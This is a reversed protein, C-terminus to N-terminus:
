ACERELAELRRETDQILKRNGLRRCFELERMLSARREEPPQEPEPDPPKPPETLYQGPWSPPEDPEDTEGLFVARPCAFTNLREEVIAWELCRLVGPEGAAQHIDELEDWLAQYCEWRINRARRGRWKRWRTWATQIAASALRPHEFVPFRTPFPILEDPAPEPSEIGSPSESAGRVAHAAITAPIRDLKPRRPEYWPLHLQGPPESDVGVARVQELTGM